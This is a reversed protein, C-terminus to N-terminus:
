EERLAIMPDVRTARRAPLYAAVIAIAGLGFAILAYTVPDSPAVEYLLTRLVRTSLLAALLGIALGLGVLLAAPGAILRVVDGRLAGLAIRIGIERTRQAV